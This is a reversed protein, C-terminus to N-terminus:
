DGRPIAADLRALAGAIRQAAVDVGLERISAILPPSHQAGTVAVRLPLMFAGLKYGEDSAIARLAADIRQEDDVGHRLLADRALELARKAEAPSQGKAVLLAPDWDTVDRYLFRLLDVVQSTTKLRERVLPM